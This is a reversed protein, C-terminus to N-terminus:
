PKRHALDSNFSSKKIQCHKVDATVLDPNLPIIEFKIPNGIAVKENVVVEYGLTGMGEATGTKLTQFSM